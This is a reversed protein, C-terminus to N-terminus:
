KLFQDKQWSPEKDLICVGNWDFEHKNSLRHDSVVSLTGSTKNIDKFHENIRTKLDKRRDLMVRM